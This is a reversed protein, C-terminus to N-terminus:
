TFAVYIIRVDLSLPTGEAQDNLETLDELSQDDDFLPEQSDVSDAESEDDTDNIKGNKQFALYVKFNQMAHVIICYMYMHLLSKGPIHRNAKHLHPKSQSAESSKRTPKDAKM